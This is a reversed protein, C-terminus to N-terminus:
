SCLESKHNSCSFYLPIISGFMALKFSHFFFFSPSPAGLCSGSSYNFFSLYLPFKLLRLFFFLSSHHGRVYGKSYNFFSFYPPSTSGFVPWKCLHLFLSQPTSGFVAWKFLYPFFVSPSPAGLCPGISYISFSFLSPHHEWVRGVEIIPALFISSSSAGM